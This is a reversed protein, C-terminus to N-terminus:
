TDIYMTIDVESYRVDIKTRDAPPKEKVSFIQRWSLVNKWDTDFLYFFPTGKQTIKTKWINKTGWDIFINNKVGTYTTKELATICACTYWSM